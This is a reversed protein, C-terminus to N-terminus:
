RSRGGISDLWGLLRESVESRDQEGALAILEEPEIGRIRQPNKVMGIMARVECEVRHAGAAECHTLAEAAATVDEPTNLISLSVANGVGSWCGLLEAEGTLQPCFAALAALARRREAETGAAHKEAAARYCVTMYDANGRLNEDADRCNEPRVERVPWGTARGQHYRIFSFVGEICNAVYGPNPAAMCDRSAAEDDLRHLRALGFGGGHWCQSGYSFEPIDSAPDPTCIETLARTPDSLNLSVVASGVGHLVSYDCFSQEERMLTRPDEGGLVAGAAAAYGGVHCYVGWVTSNRGLDTLAADLLAAANAYGTQYATRTLSNETCRLEETGHEEGHWCAAPDELAPGGIDYREGTEEVSWGGDWLFMTEAAGDKVPYSLRLGTEHVLTFTTGEARIAPPPDLLAASPGTTDTGGNRCGVLTVLTGICILATRTRRM